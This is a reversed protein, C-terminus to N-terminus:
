DPTEPRGWLAGQLGGASLPEWAAVVAQTPAQPRRPVPAPISPAPHQPASAPPRHSPPRIRPGPHQSAPDTHPPARIRSGPHQPPCIRPTPHILPRAEPIPSPHLCHNTHPSGSPFAGKHRLNGEPSTDEAQGAAGLFLTSM